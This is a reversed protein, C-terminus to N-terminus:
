NTPKKIQTTDTKTENKEPSDDLNRLLVFSAALAGTSGLFKAVFHTEHEQNIKKIMMEAVERPTHLLPLCGNPWKYIDTTVKMAEAYTLKFDVALPLDTVYDKANCTLFMAPFGKLKPVINELNIHGGDPFFFEGNENHGIISFCIKPLKLIDKDTWEKILKDVVKDIDESKSLLYVNDMKKYEDRLALVHSLENESPQRNFINYFETSNSPISVFTVFNPAAFLVEIGFLLLVATFISKM